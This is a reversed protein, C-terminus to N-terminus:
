QVVVRMSRQEAGATVRVLYIGPTRFQNVVFKYDTLGQGYKTYLRQGYLSYIELLAEHSASLEVEVSFNGNNPNPFATVSRILQQAPSIVLKSEAPEIIITKTVDAMCEGVHSALRLTYIGEKEPVLYISYANEFVKRFTAPYDWEIAEPIPWSMEILALTDGEFAKDAMIFNADIVGTGKVLTLTDKGTCGQADSVLLYYTGPLSLTATRNASTFGNESYWLYTVNAIGADANYAQNSCITVERVLQPKLSPPDVLTFTGDAICGQSDKVQLSYRGSPIEGTTSVQSGNSWLYSYPATGGRVATELVGNAYGFCLPNQQKQASIVLSDPKAITFTMSDVCGYYDTAVATYRGAKLNHISPSSSAIGRWSLSLSPTGSGISTTISGDELYSCTVDKKALLSIAPGPLNEISASAHAKCGNRDTIDVNYVGPALNIALDQHQGNSWSYSYPQTGGTALVLASGISKSCATNAIQGVSVELLPPQEVRQAMYGECGNNDKVRLPYDGYALGNFYRNATYSLGDNISYSYIGSSGGSASLTLAGTSTGFCTVRAIDDVNIRLPIGDNVKADVAATCNLNDALLIHYDGAKLSSFTPSSVWTAGLDISYRYGGWGGQPTLRVEGDQGNFCTVRTLASVGLSLPTSPATISIRNSIGPTIPVHTCSNKDTIQYTYTGVPLNDIRIGEGVLVNSSNLWKAQYPSTGGSVTLEASGNSDNFCTINRVASAVTIPSPSLITNTQFSKCGNGDVVEVRYSDGASLGTYRIEDPRAPYTKSEVEASGNFLSISYPLVGQSVHLSIVGDSGGPCLTNTVFNQAISPSGDDAISHSYKESCGNGDSISFSYVGSFQNGLTNGSLFVIEDKSWDIRYYGVGGTPTVTISGNPQNCFSNVVSATYGIRPPSGITVIQPLTECSYADSVRVTYDGASLSATYGSFTGNGIHYTYSPSGGSAVLQIEGNKGGFCTVDGKSATFTLKANQEITFDKKVECGLSDVVKGVYDGAPLSSFSSMPSFPSGNLSYKYKRWGESAILEVEGTSNGYCLIKKVNAGLTLPQNPNSIKVLTDLMGMRGKGTSCGYSDTFLFHYDFEPVESIMPRTDIIANGLGTWTHTYPKTGGTIKAEAKGNSGGFCSVDTVEFKVRIPEPQHIIDKLTFTCGNRDLANFTFEGSPLGTFRHSSTNGQTIPNSQSDQLTFTYNSIGGQMVVEVAGNSTGNCLTSDIDIEKLTFLTPETLTFRTNYTCSNADEVDISYDGKALNKLTYGSVPCSISQGNFALTYPATGGTPVVRVEDTGNYCKINFGNHNSKSISLGLADPQTVTIDEVTTTCGKSDTVKIAYSGSAPLRLFTGDPSVQLPTAGLSLAFSYLPTGGTVSIRIAGSGDGNCSLNTISPNLLELKTPEGLTTSSTFTCGLSDTVCVSYTGAGVLSYKGNSYVSGNSLNAFTYSRKGWGGTPLVEIAGNSYGNCSPLVPTFTLSIPALPEKVEFARSYNCGNADKIDLTYTDAKLEEFEATNAIGSKVLAPSKAGNLTLTYPGTGGSVQLSLKGDSGNKCKVHAVTQDILKISDPQTVPNATRVVCRESDKVFFHANGYALNDFRYTDSSTFWNQDDKSYSYYPMSASPTGGEAKLEAWGNNGNNCSIPQFSTVTLKFEAPQSVRISGSTVNCGNADIVKVYYNGAIIASSFVGATNTGISIGGRTLTYSYNPTGGSAAITIKGNDGNFCPVDVVDPMGLVLPASPQSIIKPGLTVLGCDNADKAIIFYNDGAPLNEFLGTANQAIQTTGRLLTFSYNLKGGSAIVKVSGSNQGFCGVNKVIVDNIIFATPQNVPISASELIKCRNADTATITYNNDAPLSTFQGNANSSEVNVGRKLTFSYPLVGGSATIDITGTSLGFCSIHGVIPDYLQFPFPQKVTKNESVIESCGTIADKVTITYLESPGLDQFNGDNNSKVVSGNEKLTYTYPMTGGIAKAVLKGELKGNCKIDLPNISEFTLANPQTVKIDASLVSSCTGNSNQVSVRYTNSAILDSFNGNTSSSINQSDRTLTYTYSETGGSALIKISGNNGGNCSVNVVEPIGLSLKEPENIPILSSIVPNCSNNSNKVTVTYSGKILGTFTVGKTDTKIVNGPNLTYTYTGTGGAATVFIEGDNVGNCTIHKTAPLGLLTLAAPENVVIENSVVMPCDNSVSVKYSGPGLDTFSGTSNNKIPAENKYLIFAYDGTGGSATIEIGGNNVNFCTINSISPTGLTLLSPESLTISTNALTGNCDKVQFSHDGRGLSFEYSPSFAGGDCSYEYIGSGGSAILSVVGNGGYCKISEKVNATLTLANFTKLKVTISTKSNSLLEDDADNLMKCDFWIPCDGLPLPKNITITQESNSHTSNFTAIDYDSTSTIGPIYMKIFHRSDIAGVSVKVNLKDTSCVLEEVNTIVVDPKPRVEFYFEASYPSYKIPDSGNFSVIRSRLYIKQGKGTSETLESYPPLFPYTSIRKWTDNSNARWDIEYYYLDSNAPFTIGEGTTSIYAGEGETFNQLKFSIGNADTREILFPRPPSIGISVVGGTVPHGSATRNCVMGGYNNGANADTVDFNYLQGYTFKLIDFIELFTFPTTTGYQGTCSSYNSMIQFYSNKSDVGYVHYGDLTFYDDSPDYYNGDCTTKVCESIDSFIYGSICPNGAVEDSYFTLRNGKYFIFYQNDPLSELPPLVSNPLGSCLLGEINIVLGLGTFLLILIVRKM